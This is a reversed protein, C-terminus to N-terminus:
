KHRKLFDLIINSYVNSRSTFARHDASPIIALESNPIMQYLRLPDELPISDRDGHMILTPVSIKAAREGPFEDPNTWMKSINILLDKWYDPGYVSSHMGSLLPLWEPYKEELKKFDVEGPGNMGMMRLNNAYHESKECLVGGAVLSRAAEPYEIGIELAIQGGDSYGVVFPHDLELNKILAIIDDCMLKYSLKGAPNNSKGHGRSDPVIVRYEPTLYPLYPAWNLQGTRTGGHLLIIPIGNGYDEYYMKIGNVEAYKGKNIKELALM